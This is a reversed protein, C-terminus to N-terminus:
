EATRVPVFRNKQRVFLTVDGGMEEYGIAYSIAQVNRGTLKDTYTGPKAAWIVHFRVVRRPPLVTRILWKSASESALLVAEQQDRIVAIAYSLSDADLFHSKSAGPCIRGRAYTWLNQDEPALDAIHLVKWGRWQHEIAVVLQPPLECEEEARLPPAFLIVLSVLLLFLRM